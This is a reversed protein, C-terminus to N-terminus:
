NEKHPTAARIPKDAVVEVADSVVPVEKLTLAGTSLYFKVYDDAEKLEIVEGPPLHNGTAMPLPYSRQNIWTSM